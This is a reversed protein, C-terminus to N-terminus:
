MHVAADPRDNLVAQKAEEAGLGVLHPWEAVEPPNQNDFDLGDPSVHLRRQVGFFSLNYDVFEWGECYSLRVRPGGRRSESSYSSSVHSVMAILLILNFRWAM